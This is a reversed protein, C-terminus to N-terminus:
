SINNIFSELYKGNLIKCGMMEGFKLLGEDSSVLIADLEIALIVLEVDTASDLIGNRVLERFKERLSKIDEKEDKVGKRAYEEAIRLAKDFRKRLDKVYELFVYAPIQLSTNPAKVIWLGELISVDLFPELERIVSPTTYIDFGLSKLRKMINLAAEPRNNVFNSYVEPNGFISTDLVLKM